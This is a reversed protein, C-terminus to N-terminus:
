GCFSCAIEGNPLIPDFFVRAELAPAITRAPIAYALGADPDVREFGAADLVDAIARARGTAMTSCGRSDIGSARLRERVAKPLRRVIEVADIGPRSSSLCIAYRAPVYASITRDKWARVPLWSGPAALRASLRALSRRESDTMSRIRAPSRSVPYGLTWRVRVLREGRRVSIVGWVEDSTGGSTLDLNRAFLGSSVVESRVLEVGARTLRQELLGSRRLNAYFPRYRPTRLLHGERDVLGERDWILRGDAYLWARHMPRINVQFALSTPRGGYSVVLKGRTPTSPAVGEPPLGVFGKDLYVRVAVAAAAGVAFVVMTAALVILRHRRRGTAARSMVDEWDPVGSTAPLLRDFSAHDLDTM